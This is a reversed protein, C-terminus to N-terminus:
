SRRGISSSKSFPPTNWMILKARFILSAFNARAVIQSFTRAMWRRQDRAIVVHLAMPRMFLKLVAAVAKRLDEIPVFSRHVRGRREVADQEDGAVRAVQVRM